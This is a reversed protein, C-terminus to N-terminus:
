LLRLRWRELRGHSETRSGALVWRLAHHDTRVTFQVGELYPRLLLISWVIALCENETTHYNKQADDLSRSWYGILLRSGDPQDQQLCCGLQYDSADTDLTM